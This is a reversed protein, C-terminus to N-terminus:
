LMLEKVQPQSLFLQPSATPGYAGSQLFAIVDGIDALALSIQNALIDLPTCLPEVVNFLEPLAKM